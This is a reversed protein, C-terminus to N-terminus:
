RIPTWFSEGGGRSKRGAEADADRQRILADDRGTLSLGRVADKSRAEAKGYNDAAHRILEAADTMMREAQLAYSFYKEWLDRYAERVNHGAYTFEHAWLKTVTTEFTADKIERWKTAQEELAVAHARLAEQEERYEQTM